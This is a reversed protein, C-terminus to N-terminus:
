PKRREGPVIAVIREKFLNGLDHSIDALINAVKTVRNDPGAYKAATRAVIAFAASALTSWFVFQTALSYLDNLTWDPLM